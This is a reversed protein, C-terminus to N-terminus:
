NYHWHRAGDTEDLESDEETPNWLTKPPLHAGDLAHSLVSSSTGDNALVNLSEKDRDLKDLYEGAGSLRTAKACAAHFTVASQCGSLAARHLFSRINYRNEVDQM